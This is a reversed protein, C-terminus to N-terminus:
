ITKPCTQIYSIRSLICYFLIVDFPSLLFFVVGFVGAERRIFVLISILRRHQFIGKSKCMFKADKVGYLNKVSNDFFRVTGPLENVILNKSPLHYVAQCTKTM